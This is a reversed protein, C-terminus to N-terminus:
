TMAQAHHCGSSGPFLHEYENESFYFRHSGDGESTSISCYTNVSRILPSIKLHTHLFVSLLDTLQDQM